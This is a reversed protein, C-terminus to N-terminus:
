VLEILQAKWEWGVANRWIAGLEGTLLGFYMRNELQANATPDTVLGIPDTVGLTELLQSVMAEVEDRYVSSFTLALTRRKNSKRRLLVARNSFDAGGYDRVGFAGGYGFNRQPVFRAGLVARAAQLYNTALSSVVIRWYRSASPGGTSPASWLAKRKGSAPAVTGAYLNGTTSEWYQNVGTGVGGSFANGQASTAAQIKMQAGTPPGSIGLLMITDITVNSGMDFEITATSGTASRWIVGSYDNTLNTLAGLATSTPSNVASIALPKLLWANAM